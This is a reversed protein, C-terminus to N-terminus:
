LFVKAASPKPEVVILSPIHRGPGFSQGGPRGCQSERFAIPIAGSVSRGCIRRLKEAHAPVAACRRLDLSQYNAHCLLIPIPGVPVHEAQEGIETVSDGLSRRWYESAAHCPVLALASGSSSASLTGLGASSASFTAASKKVMSTQVRLPNCRKRTSNKMSSDV